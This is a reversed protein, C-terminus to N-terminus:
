ALGDISQRIVVNAVTHYTPRVSIQDSGVTIKSLCSILNQSNVVGTTMYPVIMVISVTHLRITRHLNGVESVVLADHSTVSLVLSLWRLDVLINARGKAISTCENHLTTM